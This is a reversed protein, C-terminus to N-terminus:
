REEWSFGPTWSACRGRENERYLASESYSESCEVEGTVERRVVAPGGLGGGQLPLCLGEGPPWPQLHLAETNKAGERVERPPFQFLM